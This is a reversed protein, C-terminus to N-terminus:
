AEPARGTSRISTAGSDKTSDNIRTLFRLTVSSSRRHVRDVSWNPTAGSHRVSDYVRASVRTKYRTSATSLRAPAGSVRFYMPHAVLAGSLLIGRTDLRTASELPSEHSSFGSVRFHM